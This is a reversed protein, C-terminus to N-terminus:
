DIGEVYFDMYGRIVNDSLSPSGGEVIVNGGSATLDQPVQTVSVSGADGEFVLATGSFVDWQGSLMLDYALAIAESAEPPCEQSLPAWSVYGDFLGGYYDGGMNSVFESASAEYMSTSIALEYFSQLDEVPYTLMDSTDIVVPEASTEEETEASPEIVQLDITVDSNVAQAGLAFANAMSHMQDPGAFEYAEYAIENSGSSLSRYGEAIGTLYSAQYMRGSYNIFNTENNFYGGYQCFAIDPYEEAADAFASMHDFDIDFIIDCGYEALAEVSNRVAVDGEVEDSIRVTSVGLGDAAARIAEIHSADFGETDRKNGHCIVGVIFEGQAAVPVTVLPIQSEEAAAECGSM